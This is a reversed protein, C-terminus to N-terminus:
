SSRMIILPTGPAKLGPLFNPHYFHRSDFFHVHAFHEVAPDLRLILRSMCLLAFLAHEERRPTIIFHIHM